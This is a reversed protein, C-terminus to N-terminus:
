AALDGRQPSLPSNPPGADQIIALVQRLVDPPTTEPVEGETTVLRAGPAAAMAERVLALDSPSTASLWAAPLMVGRGVGGAGSPLPEVAPTVLVDAGSGGLPGTSARPLCVVSAVGYYRLTTCVSRLGAGAEDAREQPVEGEAVMLAAARAEALTRAASVCADGAAELAEEPPPAGAGLETALAWPGPLLAILGPAARADAHLRAVAELVAAWRPGRPLAEPDLFRWWEGGPGAPFRCAAALAGAGDLVVAELGLLRQAASLTRALAGPDEALRELSVQELRAALRTVLPAFVPPGGEAGQLRQVLGV